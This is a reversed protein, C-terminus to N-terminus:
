WVIVMLDSQSNGMIRKHSVGHCELFERMICAMHDMRRSGNCYIVM